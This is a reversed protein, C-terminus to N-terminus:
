VTLFEIKTHSTSLTDKKWYLIAVCAATLWYDPSKLQKKEISKELVDDSVVELNFSDLLALIVRRVTRYEDFSYYLDDQLARIKKNADEMNKFSHYIREIELELEYSNLMMDTSAKLIDKSKDLESEVKKNYEAIDNNAKSVSNTVFEIEGKITENKRLIEKLQGELRSIESKLENVEVM